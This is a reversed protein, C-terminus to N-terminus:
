ICDKFYSYIDSVHNNNILKHYFLDFIVIHQKSCMFYLTFFIFLFLLELCFYHKLILVTFFILSISEAM